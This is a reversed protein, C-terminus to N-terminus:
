LVGGRGRGRGASVETASLGSLQSVEDEEGIMDENSSGDAHMWIEIRQCEDQRSGAARYGRGGGGGQQQQQKDAVEQQRTKEM